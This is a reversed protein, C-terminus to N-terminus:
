VNLFNSTAETAYGESRSVFTISHCAGMNAYGNAYDILNNQAKKFKKIIRKKKYPIKKKYIRKKVM